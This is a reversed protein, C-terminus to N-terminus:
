IPNRLSRGLLKLNSKKPEEKKSNRKCIIWQIGLHTKYYKKCSPYGWKKYNV